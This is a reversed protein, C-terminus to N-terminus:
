FRLFFGFATEVARLDGFSANFLCKQLVKFSLTSLRELFFCGLYLM